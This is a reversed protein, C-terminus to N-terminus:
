EKEGRLEGVATNLEQWAEDVSKRYPNGAENCWHHYQKMLNILTKSNLWIIKIHKRMAFCMGLDFITGISRADWIIHVENAWEIAARNYDCIEMESADKLDDFAPMKVEHGVKELEAKHALMKDKYGLSGIITVKM